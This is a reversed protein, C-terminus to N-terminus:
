AYDMSIICSDKHNEPDKSRNHPDSVGSGKVCHECWDRYPTHDGMEVDSEGNKDNYWQMEEDDSIKNCSPRIPRKNM